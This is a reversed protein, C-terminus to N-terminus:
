WVDACRTRLRLEGSKGTMPWGGRPRGIPTGAQDLQIWWSQNRSAKAYEKRCTRDIQKAALRFRNLCVVTLQTYTSSVLRRWGPREGRTSYPASGVVLSSLLTVGRSGEPLFRRCVECAMVPNSSGGWAAAFGYGWDVSDQVSNGRLPAQGLGISTKSRRRGQCDALM